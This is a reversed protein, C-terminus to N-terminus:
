NFMEGHLIHPPTSTYSRANKAEVRPPPSHKAKCGQRKVRSSITGPVWQILPQTPRLVSSSIQARCFISARNEQQGSRLGAVIIVPIDWSGSFTVPLHIWNCSSFSFQATKKVVQTDPKWFDTQEMSKSRIQLTCSSKCIVTPMIDLCRRTM